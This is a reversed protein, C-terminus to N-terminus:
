IRRRVRKSQRLTLGISRSFELVRLQINAIDFKRQHKAQHWEQIAKPSKGCQWLVTWIAHTALKPHGSGWVENVQKRYEELRRVLTNQAEAKFTPWKSLGPLWVAKFELEFMPVPLEEPMYWWRTPPSGAPTKTLTEVAADLIWASNMQHTEAWKSVAACWPQYSAEGALEGFKRVRIQGPETEPWAMWPLSTLLDPWHEETAELFLFRGQFNITPHSM